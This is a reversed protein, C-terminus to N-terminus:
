IFCNFVYLLYQLMVAKQIKTIIFLSIRHPQLFVTKTFSFLIDFVKFSYFTLKRQYFAIILYIRENINM